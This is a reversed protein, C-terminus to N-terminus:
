GRSIQRHTMSRQGVSFFSPNTPTDFGINDLSEYVGTTLATHGPVTRTDGCNFFNPFFVGESKLSDLNPINAHTPDGWSESYRAGDVVIMVVNETIFTERIKDSQCGWSLLVLAQVM